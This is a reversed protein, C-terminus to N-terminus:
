GSVDIMIMADVGIGGKRTRGLELFEQHMPAPPVQVSYGRRGFQARFTDYQAM